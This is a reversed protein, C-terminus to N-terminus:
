LTPGTWDTIEVDYVSLFDFTFSIVIPFRISLKLLLSGVLWVYIKSANRVTVRWIM